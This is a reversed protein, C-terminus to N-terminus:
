RRRRLGLGALLTALLAWSPPGQAARCGECSFASDCPAGSEVAWPGFQQRTLGYPDERVWPTPDSVELVLSGNLGSCRLDLDPDRSVEEGDLLWRVDLGAAPALLDFAVRVPPGDGRADLSAGPEPDFRTALGPLRAYIAFIAEQRCVACYGDQLTNMMCGFETPRYFNTYSCTAFAEIEPENMWSSWPPAEPDPSCNAAELTADGPAGYSYEDWLGVLTHGIEHAAVKHGDFDGVYSTAYSFGGSGGYRERDNILVMVGDAEPLGAEVARLVAEDDCCILRDLGACGYACAYATDRQPDGPATSGSVNSAQDLRWVNFLDGYSAYPELTLLYATIREVDEAFAPLEAETYGDGLFLLDLREAPDASGRV